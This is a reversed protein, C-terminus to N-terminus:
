TTRFRGGFRRMCFSFNNFFGIQYGYEIPTERDLIRKALDDLITASNIKESNDRLCEMNVQLSQRIESSPLRTNVSEIVENGIEAYKRLNSTELVLGIHHDLSAISTFEEGIGYLYTAATFQESWQGGDDLRQKVTVVDIPEGALHMSRIVRYATVHYPDAFDGPNVRQTIEGFRGPDLLLAGVIQQESEKAAPPTTSIM